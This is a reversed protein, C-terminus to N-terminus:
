GAYVVEAIDSRQGIPTDALTGLATYQRLEPVDPQALPTRDDFPFKSRNSVVLRWEIEGKLRCYLNLAAVGKKEVRIRVYGTFAKATLSPQYHTEDIVPRRSIARMAEGIAATYGLAVKARPRNQLTLGHRFRPFGPPHRAVRRHESM